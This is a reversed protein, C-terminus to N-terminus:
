DFLLPEEVTMRKTENDSDSSFPLCGSLLGFLICGISWVDVSFTYPLMLFVEPAAYGVTGFPDNARENPGLIRSLGFDAIKPVAGDSNDSM